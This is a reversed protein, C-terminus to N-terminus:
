VILMKKLELENAFCENAATKMLTQNESPMSIIMEPTQTTRAVSLSNNIFNRNGLYLSSKASAADFKRNALYDEFRLEEFCKGEYEKMATICHHKINFHITTNNSHKHETETRMTETFKITTGIQQHSVPKTTNTVM